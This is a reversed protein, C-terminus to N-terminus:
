RCADEIGFHKEPTIGRVLFPPSLLPPSTANRSVLPHVNRRLSAARCGTAQTVQRLLQRERDKCASAEDEVM